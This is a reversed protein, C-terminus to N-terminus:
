LIPLALPRYFTASPSSVVQSRDNRASPSHGQPSKSHGHCHGGDNTCWSIAWAVIETEHLWAQLWTGVLFSLHENSHHHQFSPFKYVSTCWPFPNRVQSVCHAEDIVFRSLLKRRYLNELVSTLKQSAVLQLFIFRTIISLSCYRVSGLM